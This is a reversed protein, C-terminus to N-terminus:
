HCGGGGHRRGSSPHVHSPRDNEAGGHGTETRRLAAGLLVLAGAIILIWLLLTM